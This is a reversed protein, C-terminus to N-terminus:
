KFLETHKIPTVIACQMAYYGPQAEAITWHDAMTLGAAKAAARFTRLEVGWAKMGRPDAPAVGPRRVMLAIDPVLRIMAGHNLVAACDNGEAILIRFIETLPRPPISLIRM